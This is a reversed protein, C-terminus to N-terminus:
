PGSTGPGSPSAERDKGVFAPTAIRRLQASAYHDSHRGAESRCMLCQIKKKHHKSLLQQCGSCPLRCTPLKLCIHGLL